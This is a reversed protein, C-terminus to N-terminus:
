NTRMQHTYAMGTALCDECVDEAVLLRLSVLTWRRFLLETSSVLVKGPRRVTLVM